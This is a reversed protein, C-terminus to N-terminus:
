NALYTTTLSHFLIASLIATVLMVIKNKKEKKDM